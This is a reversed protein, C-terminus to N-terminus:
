STAPLRAMVRRANPQQLVTESLRSIMLALIRVREKMLIQSKEGLLELVVWHSHDGTVMQTLEEIGLGLVTDLVIVLMDADLPANDAQKFCSQVVYGGHEDLCLMLVEPMLQEVIRLKTAYECHKLVHQIAYNSYQGLALDVAREIVVEEFVLLESGQACRFCEIYYDSMRRTHHTRTRLSDIGHQILIKCHRYDMSTFCYHLLEVGQARHVLESRVLYELLMKLLAPHDTVAALLLKMINRSYAASMVNAEVAADVITDLAAYNQKCDRLLLRLAKMGEKTSLADIGGGSLFRSRVEQLDLAGQPTSSAKGPVFEDAKASLMSGFSPTLPSTSTAHPQQMWPQTERRGAM